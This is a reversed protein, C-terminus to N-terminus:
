PSEEEAPGRGPGDSLPGDVPRWDGRSLERVAFQYIVLRVGDLRDPDSRLSRALAERSTHSGGANVAIRDLSRGLHYSLQEALGASRGWGLEDQSFVNTFSDGLLLVRARDTPAWLGGDPRLVMRITVERSAFLERGAPLRLMRVLDGKGSVTVPRRRYRIRPVAEPELRAEVRDALARAVRDMAEPTWHTDTALFQAEGTQKRARALLPAPDFVAIGAAELDRVWRATSPNRLPVEGAFAGERGAFREPHITPKVPTPVVLLEIGRGALQRRFARLAPRPDAHPPEAWSPAEAVRAELADPRLFGRGLLHEVDPRYFLWGERAPRGLLARRNGDGLLATELWQASPVVTKQLLSREELVSELRAIEELLLRNAALPRGQVLAGAVRSALGDTVGVGGAGAVGALELAPVAGVTLLFLVGLAGAVWPRVATRGVERLAQKERTPRTSIM